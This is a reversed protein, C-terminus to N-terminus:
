FHMLFRLPWLCTHSAVMPSHVIMIKILRNGKSKVVCKSFRPLNSHTKVNPMCSETECHACWVRVHSSCPRFVPSLASTKKHSRAKVRYKDTCPWCGLFQCPCWNQSIRINVFWMIHRMIINLPTMNACCKLRLTLCYLAKEDPRKM